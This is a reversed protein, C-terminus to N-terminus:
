TAEGDTAVAAFGDFVFRLDPTRKLEIAEALQARLFPSARTLSREVRRRTEEQGGARAPITFHVRAHRYDVSLVLNSLHVDFLIPDAVADRLISRLEELVLSQLRDHRHGAAEDDRQKM